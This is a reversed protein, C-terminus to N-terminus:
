KVADMPIEKGSFQVATGAAQGIWALAAALLEVGQELARKQDETGVMEFSFSWRKLVPQPITQPPPLTEPPPIPLPDPAPAPPTVVPPVPTPSPTPTPTPATSQALADAQLYVLFEEHGEVDDQEWAPDIHGYCYTCAGEVPTGAFINDEAYKLNEFYARDQSWDPMIQHWYNQLTKFGRIDTYPATRPLTNTWWKIDSVDDFGAETLVIRPPIIGASACYDSWFRFRGVHWKTLAAAFGKRPWSAPLTYDPHVVEGKDTRGNPAGGVFGSTIVANAYEHLGLVFLDSHDALLQLMPKAMKIVDPNPTGVSWNGVVLRIKRSLCLQMLKVHWDIVDQGWGPECTTMLWAGTNSEAGRLELWREPTVKAFVNDDGQTIGYNRHIVHTKPSADIIQKCLELGDMVLMWAPQTKHVHTLLRQVDKVGQAHVNFGYFAQAM